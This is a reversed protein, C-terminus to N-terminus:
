LIEFINVKSSQYKFDIDLQKFLLYGIVNFVKNFIIMAIKHKTNLNKYRM